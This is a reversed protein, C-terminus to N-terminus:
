DHYKLVAYLIILKLPFIAKRDSKKFSPCTDLKFNLIYVEFTQGKNQM